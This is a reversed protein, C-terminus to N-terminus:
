AHILKDEELEMTTIEAAFRITSGIPKGYRAAGAKTQIVISTGTRPNAETKSLGTVSSTWGKFTRPPKWSPLQSLTGTQTDEARQRFRNDLISIIPSEDLSVDVFKDEFNPEKIVKKRVLERIRDESMDPNRVRLRRSLADQDFVFEVKIIGLRELRKRADLATTEPIGAAQAMLGKPMRGVGAPGVFSSVAALTAETNQIANKNIGGPRNFEKLDYNPLRKAKVFEMEGLTGRGAGLHDDIGKREERVGSPLDFADIDRRTRGSKILPPAALIVDGAGFNRLAAEMGKAQNMVNPNKVGDADPILVVERGQAHTRTFWELESGQWLTVSPVNVVTATPDEKKISHLIADNKMNGEMAIYIRGKGDKLNKINKPDQHMDIRASTAGPAFVYKAASKKHRNDLRKVQNQQAEVLRKKALTPNEIARALSNRHGQLGREADYLSKGSNLNSIRMPVKAQARTANAFEKKAAAIEALDGKANAKALDKTAKDLYDASEKRISDPTSKKVSGLNAEAGKVRDAYIKVVKASNAAEYIALDAQATELKKKNYSAKAPNTVIAVNPRVQSAVPGQPSGPVPAKRMVLGGTQGKQEATSTFFRKAAPFDEFAAALEPDTKSATYEAYPRSAYTKRDINHAELWADSGPVPKGTKRDYGNVGDIAYQGEDGRGDPGTSDDQECFKGDTDSHCRNYFETLLDEQDQTLFIRRSYLEAKFENWTPANAM